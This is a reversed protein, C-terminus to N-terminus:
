TTEKPNAGTKFICKRYIKEGRRIFGGSPAPPKPSNWWFAAPIRTDLPHKDLRMCRGEKKPHLRGAATRDWKAFVCHDCTTM